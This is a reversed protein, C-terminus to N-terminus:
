IKELFKHRKAIFIALTRLVAEDNNKVLALSNAKLLLLLLESHFDERPNNVSSKDIYFGYTADTILRIYNESNLLDAIREALLALNNDNAVQLLWVFARMILKAEDAYISQRKFTKGKMMFKPIFYAYDSALCYKTFFVSGTLLAFDKFRINNKRIKDIRYM